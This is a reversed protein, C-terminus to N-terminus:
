SMVVTTVQLTIIPEMPERQVMVVSLPKLAPALLIPRLAQSIGERTTEPLVLVLPKKASSLLKTRRGVVLVEPGRSVEPLVPRSSHCLPLPWVWQTQPVPSFVASLVWVWSFSSQIPTVSSFSRGSPM